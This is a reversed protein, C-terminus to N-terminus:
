EEELRKKFSGIEIPASVLIDGDNYYDQIDEITMSKFDKFQEISDNNALVMAIEETEAEVEIMKMDNDFCSNVCVIYKKM